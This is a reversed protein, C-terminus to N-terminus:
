CIQLSQVGLLEIPMSGDASNVPRGGQEVNDLFTTQKINGGDSLTAPKDSYENTKQRHLIPVFHVWFYIM